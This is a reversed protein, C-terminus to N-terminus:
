HGRAVRDALYAWQKPTLVSAEDYYPEGCIHGKAWGTTGVVRFPYTLRCKECTTLEWLVGSYEATEM